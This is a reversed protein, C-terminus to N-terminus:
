NYTDYILARASALSDIYLARIERYLSSNPDRYTKSGVQKLYPSTTSSIIVNYNIYDFGSTAIVM